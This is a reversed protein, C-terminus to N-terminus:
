IKKFEIGNETLLAYDGDKSLRGICILKILFNNYEVVFNRHNHGILVAKTKNNWPYTKIFEDKTFTEETFSWLDNPRNHFCIYNSEDPLILKFGRPLGKLYDIHQQTLDYIDSEALVSEGENYKPLVKVFSDGTSCGLIHSEHNGELCPIQNDIFYQISKENWKEKVKSFLFTIDGLCIFKNNSYIEKLKRINTINTHTDTIIVLPFEKVEIEQLNPKNDYSKTLILEM